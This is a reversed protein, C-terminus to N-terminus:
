PPFTFDDITTGDILCYRWPCVLACVLVELVRKDWNFTKKEKKSYCVTQIHTRENYSLLATDHYECICM